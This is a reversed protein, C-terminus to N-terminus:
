KDDAFEFNDAGDQPGRPYRELTFIEPVPRATHAFRWKRWEKADRDTRWAM